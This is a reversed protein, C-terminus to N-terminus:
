RAQSSLGAGWAALFERGATRDRWDSGTIVVGVVIWLAMFAWVWPGAHGGVGVIIPLVAWLVVSVLLKRRSRLRHRAYNLAAQQLRPHPLARGRNVSRIVLAREQGTLPSDPASFAKWDDHAITVAHALGCGIGTVVSDVLWEVPHEPDRAMTFVFVVVGYLLGRLLGRAWAPWSLITYLEYLRTDYRRAVPYRTLM